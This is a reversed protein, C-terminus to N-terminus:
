VIHQVTYNRVAELCRDTGSKHDPSTMTVNGGFQKVASAIRDDDTAVVVNPHAAIAKNYVREIMTTGGIQALPKGPFRTSAYRAPIVILINHM